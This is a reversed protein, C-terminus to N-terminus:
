APFLALVKRATAAVAVTLLMGWIIDIMSLGVPWAALLALNTLDYSAYVLLGLLAGSRLTDHWGGRIRHPLVAFYMVGAVFVLYFLAAAVFNPREALLHGIGHKYLDGAIAGLWLFDLLMMAAVAAVFAAVYKLM